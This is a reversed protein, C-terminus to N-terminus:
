ILFMSLERHQELYDELWSKWSLRVENASQQQQQQQQFQQQMQQQQLMAAQQAASQMLMFLQLQVPNFNAPCMNNPPPPPFGFLLSQSPSPSLGAHGLQHQHQSQLDTIATSQAGIPQILNLLGSNASIHL